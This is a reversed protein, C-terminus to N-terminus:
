NYCRPPCPQTPPPGLAPPPLLAWTLRMRHMPLCRVEEDDDASSKAASKSRKASAGPADTAGSRATKGSPRQAPQPATAAAGIPPPLQPTAPRDDPVPSFAARKEFRPPPPPMLERAFSCNAVAATTVYAVDELPSISASPMFSTSSDDMIIVRTHVDISSQSHVDIDTTMFDDEVGAEMEVGAEEVEPEEQAMEQVEEQAEGEEAAEDEGAAAAAAEATLAAQLREPMDVKIGHSSILPFVRPAILVIQDARLLV